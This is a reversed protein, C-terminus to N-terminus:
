AVMFHRLADFPSRDLSFADSFAVTYGADELERLAQQQEPAHGWSERLWLPHGVVVATRGEHFTLVPLGAAEGVKVDFHRGLGSATTEAVDRMRSGWRRTDLEHGLALDVVDLALRWDLAWHVFRNDYSRLCTPCSSTCASVHSPRQLNAGLSGRVDELMRILTSPKGLEVAFGAGNDLADAVYVRHTMVQSVLTPQLGVILESEDIDLFAHAARRLMQAFSLMAPLGAPCSQKSTAIAGGALTENNVLLTLVDTRRVDGIALPGRGAGERFFGALTKSYLSPDPCAYSGDSQRILEYLKGGNDNVNLVEVQELVATSMAAVRVVKDAPVDTALQGIARSSSIDETDDFDASRYTTRFGAPQVLEFHRVEGGCVQCTVIDLDMSLDLRECSRCRAVNLAAELPDVAVAKRGLFDYAAFGVCVHESGDKVVITGPSFTTVAMNMPRSSLTSRDRDALDKVRASYLDRVRTPFGFMPLVGANALLESLEAHAFFPNSVAEDIDAVLSNRAWEAVSTPEVSTLACFRTAVESVDAANSLWQLLSERRTAWEVTLGFIGHISEANRRPPVPMILFGRRLLEAAVVRKVIRDRGLDIFPAPPDDSTMRGMHHFFFEDHARDRCVTVAFSFPQGSRGARGVRQQYNFRQPPVNAMTVSRLSGIDVGVEMTTTVSLVDLTDTLSNEQPVPLLAGRFRRQRERQQELSTQGTLEAVAMRRLPQAALWSYYDDSRGAADARLGVTHCGRNTCVGASPHLHVAACNICVWRTSGAPRVILPVEVSATLLTCTTENLVKNAALDAMLATLLEEMACEHAAAVQTVFGRLVKPVSSSSPVYAGDYRKAIGLIRIASARLQRAVEEKVPWGPALPAAVDLYGVGTSEADRGARDFIAASVQTAAIRRSEALYGGVVSRELQIWLRDLPPAYARYWPTSEDITALSPGPGAPNIGLGVFSNTAGALLAPWTLLDDAKDHFDLLARDEDDALGAAELRVAGWLAPEQRRVGEAAALQDPELQGRALARLTPLAPLHEQVLQRVSQRVQDRFSNLNIGAATTAAEDRSDAFIITRAEEATDGTSRFVQSVVIQALQSQGSTHARIPSRVTGTFFKAAEQTGAKMSCRPCQEPLAPVVIDEHAGDAVLILGTRGTTAVDSSDLLGLRPDLSAPAFALTVKAPKATGDGVDATSAPAKRSWTELSEDWDTPLPWYWAYEGLSRRFIPASQREGPELPTTALLKIGADIERAIYGGLSVDGCEFCYLLELVRSGCPCAARPAAFLRGITRDNKGPSVEACAPDCCAWLGRLGRVMMHARIPIDAPELTSLGRFVSRLAPGAVTDDGFLRNAVLGAETARIHGAEDRCADAVTSSWGNEGALRGLDEDSLEATLSAPDIRPGPTVVLPQGGEIVFSARAAGFFAELFALSSEDGPMSASTAMIRLQPSEPPLGLRHLLNRVVMAVEAGATGRYLHLEDVVLTFARSADQALWARTKQFLPEEIDRMLIANLMSYNTVFIDPPTAVMDWRAVLEGDRPDSFQALLLESSSSRRVTDVDRCMERLTHATSSVRPSSRGSQPMDSSGPSAGTYRGFWLDVGGSGARLRRVAIRLRSMQDEVLANTPYLVMARMASVRLSSSRTPRWSASGPQWWPDIAPVGPTDSAEAILRALLPLLFAETKGSGTGSTVVVNRADASGLHVDLSRSQHQRLRVGEASGFLAIGAQLVPSGHRAAAEKLSEVGEYPLVPELVLPSFLAGQDGLLLDRREAVLEPERLAFTTDVYRLVTDKLGDHVTFPDPYPM